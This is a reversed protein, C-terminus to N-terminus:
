KKDIDEYDCGDLYCVECKFAADNLEEFSPIEV